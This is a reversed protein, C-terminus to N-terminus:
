LEPGGHHSEDAGLEPQHGHIWLLDTRTPAGANHESSNWEKDPPKGSCDQRFYIKYSFSSIINSTSTLEMTGLSVAIVQPNERGEPIIFTPGEIKFKIDVFKEKNLFIKLSPGIMWHFARVMSGVLM